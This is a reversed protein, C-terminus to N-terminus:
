AAVSYEDARTASQSDGEEAVPLPVVAAALQLGTFQSCERIICFSGGIPLM